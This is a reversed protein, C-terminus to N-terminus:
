KLRQLQQFGVAHSIGLGDKRCATYLQGCRRANQLVFVDLQFDPRTSFRSFEGCGGDERGWAAIGVAGRDTTLFLGYRYGFGICAAACQSSLVSFQSSIKSIFDSEVGQAPVHGFAHLFVREERAVREIDSEGDSVVIM